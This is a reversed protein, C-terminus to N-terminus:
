TVAMSTSPILGADQLRQQWEVLEADSLTAIQEEDLDGLIERTYEAELVELPDSRDLRLDGLLDHLTSTIAGRLPADLSVHWTAIGLVPELEPEWDAQARGLEQRRRELDRLQRPSPACNGRRRRQRDDFAKQLCSASCYRRCTNTTRFTAPCWGCTRVAGPEYNPDRWTKGRFIDKVTHSSVGYTEALEEITAVSSTLKARMDHVADWDLGSGASRAAAEERTSIVGHDPNICLREGCTRALVSGDPLPGNVLSWYLAAPRNDRRETWRGLVPLGRSDLTRMWVWCGTGMVRYDGHTPAHTGTSLSEGQAPVGGAAEAMTSLVNTVSEAVLAGLRDVEAMVDPHDRRLARDKAIVALLGAAHHRLGQLLEDGMIEPRSLPISDFSM